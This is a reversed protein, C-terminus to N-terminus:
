AESHEDTRRVVSYTYAAFHKQWFGYATPNFSEFDVGLRKFGEEALTNEAYQLLADFIGKGKHEPLLYAGCLNAIDPSQCVFHEGEGGAKLYAIIGDHKQAIFYRVDNLAAEDQVTEPTRAAFRMFCPSKGLHEILANNLATVRWAEERPIEMLTVGRPCAASRTEIPKIADICRLGFGYGFFAKVAAEDHAYLTISHVTAAQAFWKEAISRYMEAYIRAKNRNVASNGQAPSWVGKANPNCAFPNDFPGYACLYGLMAGNEFAAVGKGNKAFWELGPIGRIEPLGDVVAKEANYGMLALRHAEEIHNADFDTIKMM